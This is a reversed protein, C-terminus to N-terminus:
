KLLVALNDPEFAFIVITFKQDIITEGDKTIAVFCEAAGTLLQEVAQTDQSTMEGSATLLLGDDQRAFEINDATFEAIPLKPFAFRITQM